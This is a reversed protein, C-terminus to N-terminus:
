EYKCVCLQVKILENFKRGDGESTKNMYYQEMEEGFDDTLEDEFGKVTSWKDCNLVRACVKVNEGKARARSEITEIMKKVDAIAMPNNDNRRAIINKQISGPLEITKKTTLNFASM